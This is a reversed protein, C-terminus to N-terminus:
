SRGEELNLEIRNRDRPKEALFLIRMEQFQNKLVIMVASPAM